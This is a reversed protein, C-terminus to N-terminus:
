WRPGNWPTPGNWGRDDWGRHPRRWEIVKLGTIEASRGDVVLVVRNGRRNEAEAIYSWGRVRKIDVASYGQRYLSGAIARPPLLRPRGWDGRDERALDPRRERGPEVQWAPMPRGEVYPADDGRPWDQALATGAGALTSLALVAAICASRVLANRVM